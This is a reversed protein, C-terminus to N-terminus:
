HPAALALLVGGVDSSRNGAHLGIPDDACRMWPPAIREMENIIKRVSTKM